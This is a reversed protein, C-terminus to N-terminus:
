RGLFDGLGWCKVNGDNLVACTHSWGCAVDVVTKGTGVDKVSELM